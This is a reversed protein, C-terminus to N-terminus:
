MPKATLPHTQCRNGGTAEALDQDGQLAVGTKQERKAKQLQKRERSRQLQHVEGSRGDM